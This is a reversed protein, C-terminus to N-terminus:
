WSFSSRWLVFRKLIWILYKVSFNFGWGFCYKRPVIKGRRHLSRTPVVRRSPGLRQHRELSGRRAAAMKAGRSDPGRIPRRRMVHGGRMESRPLFQWSGRSESGSVVYCGCLTCAIKVRFILHLVPPKQNFEKQCKM